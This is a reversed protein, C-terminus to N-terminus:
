SMQSTNFRHQDNSYNESVKDGWHHGIKNKLKDDHTSNKRATPM